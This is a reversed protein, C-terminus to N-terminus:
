KYLICIKEFNHNIQTNIKWYLCLFPFLSFFFVFLLVSFTESFNLYTVVFGIVEQSM